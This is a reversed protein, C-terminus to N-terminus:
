TGYVSEQNTERHINSTPEVYKNSRAVLLLYDKPIARTFSIVIEDLGM